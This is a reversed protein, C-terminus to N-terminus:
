ESSDDEESDSDSDLDDLDLSIKPRKSVSPRAFRVSAPRVLKAPSAEEGEGARTAGSKSRAPSGQDGRGPEDEGSQSSGSSSEDSGGATGNVPANEGKTAGNQQDPPKDLDKAVKLLEEAPLSTGTRTDRFFAAGDLLVVM